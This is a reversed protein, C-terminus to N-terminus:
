DGECRLIRSIYNCYIDIPTYNGLSGIVDFIYIITLIYSMSFPLFRNKFCNFRVLDVGM